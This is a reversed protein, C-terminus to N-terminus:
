YAGLTQRGRVQHSQPSLPLYPREGSRHTFQANPGEQKCLLRKYGGLWRNLGARFVWHWFSLPGFDCCYHQGPERTCPGKNSKIKKSLNKKKVWFSFKEQMSLTTQNNFNRLETGLVWTLSDPITSCVNLRQRGLTAPLSPFIVTGPWGSQGGQHAGPWDGLSGTEFLLTSLFGLSLYCLRNESRWMRSYLCTFYVKRENLWPRALSVCFRQDKQRLRRLVPVAPITWLKQKLLRRKKGMNKKHKLCPREYDLDRSSEEPLQSQGQGESGETGM